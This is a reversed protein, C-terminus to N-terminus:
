QKRFANVVTTESTSSTEIEALSLLLEDGSSSFDDLENIGLDFNPISM